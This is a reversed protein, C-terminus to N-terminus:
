RRCPLQPFETSIRTDYVVNIIQLLCAAVLASGTSIKEGSHYFLAPDKAIFNWRMRQGVMCTDDYPVDYICQTTFGKWCRRVKPRLEDQAHPRGVM